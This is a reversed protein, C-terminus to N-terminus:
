FDEGSSQHFQFTKEMVFDDTAPSHTQQTFLVSFCDILHLLAFLFFSIKSHDFVFQFFIIGYWKPSFFKWHSIAQRKSNSARCLWVIKALQTKLMKIIMANFNLKMAWISLRTEFTLCFYSCCLFFTTKENQLRHVHKLQCNDNSLSNNM